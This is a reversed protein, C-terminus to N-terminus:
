RDVLFSLGMIGLQGGNDGMTQQNFRWIDTPIHFCGALAVLGQFTSDGAHLAPALHTECPHQLGDTPFLIPFIMHM